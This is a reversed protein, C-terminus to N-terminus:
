SPSAILLSVVGGEFGSKTIDKIYFSLSFEVDELLPNEESSFLAVNDISSFVESRPLALKLLRKSNSVSLAYVFSELSM